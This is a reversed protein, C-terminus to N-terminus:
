ICVTERDMLCVWTGWCMWLCVFALAPPIEV